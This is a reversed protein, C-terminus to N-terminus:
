YNDPFNLNAFEGYLEKAKEDRARAAAIEDKFYGLHYHTGNCRIAACWRKTPSYWYVGNYQSSYKSTRKHRNWTNEYNSSLRLNSRVNNLGNGDIHDCHESSLLPRELMRSLIIRHMPISTRTRNPTYTSIQAYFLGPHDSRSWTQWKELALDKDIDDIICMFGKTLQIKIM